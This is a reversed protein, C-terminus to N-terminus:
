WYPETERDTTTKKEKEGERASCRPFRYVHVYTWGDMAGDPEPLGLGEKPLGLGAEPLGLIDEPLGM